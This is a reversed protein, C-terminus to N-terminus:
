IKNVFNYKINKMIKTQKGTYIVIGYIYDVNLLTGGRLLTNNVNFYIKEQNFFQIIGDIQYINNNPKEVEISGKLELFNAVIENEAFKQTYFIAERPKLSTERKTLNKKKGM